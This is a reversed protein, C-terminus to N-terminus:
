AVLYMPWAIRFLTGRNNESTILEIKGGHVEVMRKTLALGLGSSDNSKALTQFLKFVRDKAAEPIGPGDDQIEFIAFLAHQSLTISINGTSQDHHKIANSVVNRIATKLPTPTCYFDDINGNIAINFGNPLDIIDLVDHILSLPKILAKDTEVKGARAYHLLDTILTDMRNVRIQIRDLNKKVEPKVEKGLDEGVWDILDSIGRLPSRLDHSAVATFEELNDYAQQLEYSMKRMETIDWNVGIFNTIKGKKDYNLIATARINRVEGSNLLIKFETDFPAKNEMAQELDFIARESDEPHLHKIWLAYEVNVSQPEYGYLKFMQDDWVLNNNVLDYDWIGIHGSNTAINIRQNLKELDRNHQIRETLDQIAGYLKIPKDLHMEVQGVSRVWIQNGNEQTLPLELDWPQGNDIAENIAAKFQVKNETPYFNIFKELDPEFEKSVGHIKKIMASWTLKNNSLDLQWGGVLAVEGAQTLLRESSKLKEADLIRRTVDVHTGYMWEPENKRTWTLVRGRAEIWIWNGNKHKMRYTSLYQLTKNLFHDLLHQQSEKLDAEHVLKSWNSFSLEGIEAISYGLMSAWENNFKCEGTKINWQWTGAGTGEIVSAFYKRENELAQEILKRKSIDRRISLITEVNGASDLLPTIVSDVWYISGDKARNCIVGRWSKGSLVTTWMNKFFGKPHYGSNVFRHDKGMLEEKSYQSIACFSENVDIIKGNNDTMSMIFQTEITSILGQTKRKASLEATIDTLMGKSRYPKGDADLEIVTSKIAEIIKGSKTVKQIHIDPAKGPKAYAENLHKCANEASEATMFKTALQGIVEERTYEHKELWMDSVDIINGDADLSQLMAPSTQYLLRLQEEKEELTNMAVVQKTIDEVTGVYGNLLGNSLFIPRAHANVYRITKDTILVKFSLDFEKKDIVAKQWEEFVQLQDDPHISRAWGDGLYQNDNLDFIKQWRENTYTCAGSADTSFVGLPSAESIARFKAENDALNKATEVFNRIDHIVKCAGILEGKKNYIPALNVSVDLEESHKNLRKTQYVLGNPSLEFRRKFNSEEYKRNEPVIIQISRGLMEEKIYGFQEEASQNWYIITGDLKIAIIPVNVHMFIAATFEASSLLDVDDALAQRRELAFVAATALEQLITRQHNTLKNPKKDIVCLTGINEGTSLTLPAGAYFRIKPDETVLPNDAFRQDEETNEVELISNQLIAHACFSHDRPTETAGQLGINAKFWQRHEDVLSILSIPTNCVLSAIKVLSNFESECVTDLISLQKLAQLRQTENVPKKAVLM